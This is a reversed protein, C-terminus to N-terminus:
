EHKELYLQVKTLDKKLNIKHKKIIEKLFMELVEYFFIENMPELIDSLSVSRCKFAPLGQWEGLNNIIMYGMGRFSHGGSNKPQPQVFIVCGDPILKYDKKSYFKM